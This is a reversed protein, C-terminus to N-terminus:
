LSAEIHIVILGGVMSLKKIRVVEHHPEYCIVSGFGGGGTLKRRVLEIREGEHLIATDLLTAQETQAQENAASNHNHNDPM